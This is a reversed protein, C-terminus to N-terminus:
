HKTKKEALKQSEKLRRAARAIMIRQSGEADGENSSMRQVYSGDPQMDWAGRRDALQLDM